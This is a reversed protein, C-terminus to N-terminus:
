LHDKKLYYIWINIGLDLLLLVMTNFQTYIRSKVLCGFFFFFQSIKKKCPSWHGGNYLLIVMYNQLFKNYLDLSFSLLSYRYVIFKLNITDEKWWDSAVTIIRASFVRLLITTCFQCLRYNEVHSSYLWLWMDFNGSYILLKGDLDVLQFYCSQCLSIDKLLFSGDM